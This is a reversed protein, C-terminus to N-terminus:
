TLTSTETFVLMDCNQQIYKFKFNLFDMFLTHPLTHIVNIDFRTSIYVGYGVITEGPNFSIHLYNGLKIKIFINCPFFNVLSLSKCIEM